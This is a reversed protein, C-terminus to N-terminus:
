KTRCRYASSHLQVQVAPHERINTCFFGIDEMQYGAKWLVYPLSIQDRRSYKRIEDWWKEMIQRCVPENHRRAFVNTEILGFSEPMGEKRYHEIQRKMVEATEKKKLICAEAEKYICNRQPHWNSAMDLKGVSEAAFTLDGIVRINSDIWISYEYDSFLEHPHLKIYRAQRTKDMEKLKEFQKLDIWRWQSSKPLPVETVAYFDMNDPVYVPELLEDYSGTICTYVAIRSDSPLEARGTLFFLNQGALKQLERDVRSHEIGTLVARWDGRKLAAKAKLIKEGLRYEKSSILELYERNLNLLEENM